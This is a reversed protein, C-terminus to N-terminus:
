GRVRSNFYDTPHTVSRKVWGVSSLNLPNVRM